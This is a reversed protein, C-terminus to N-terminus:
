IWREDKHELDHNILCDYMTLPYNGLFHSGHKPTIAVIFPWPM